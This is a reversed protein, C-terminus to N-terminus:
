NWCVNMQHIAYIPEKKGYDGEAIRSFIEYSGRSEAYRSKIVRYNRREDLSCDRESESESM